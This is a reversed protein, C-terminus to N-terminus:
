TVPWPSSLYIHIQHDLLYTECKTLLHKGPPWPSSQAHYYRACSSSSSLQSFFSLHIPYLILCVILSIIKSPLSNPLYYSLSFPLHHSFLPFYWPISSPLSSCLTKCALLNPPPHPNCPTETQVLPAITQRTDWQIARAATNAHDATILTM